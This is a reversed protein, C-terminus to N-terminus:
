EAGSKRSAVSEVIIDDSRTDVPGSRNFIAKLCDLGADTFGPVKQVLEEASEVVAVTSGSSAHVAKTADEIWETAVTGTLYVQFGQLTQLTSLIATRSDKDTPQAILALQKFS